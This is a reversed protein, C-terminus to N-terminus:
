VKCGIHAFSDEIMHARMYGVISHLLMSQLLSAKHVKMNVKMHGVAIYGLISHMLALAEEEVGKVVM